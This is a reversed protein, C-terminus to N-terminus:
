INTHTYIYVCIYICVMSLSRLTACGTDGGCEWGSVCDNDDKCLVHDATHATVEVVM